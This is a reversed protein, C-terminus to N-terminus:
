TVGNHELTLVVNGKKHGQGVYRHAEATQELPYCRDIVPKIEGAEILMGLFVLDEAKEKDTSGMVSLFVGKEKLLARCQASSIKGVADFLLDYREGNQTFDERTYDIVKGAGLAKVWELNPTSCVGTVEAGFYRALQVAFSGVSGSAGYVLIKQGAQLNGKRLFRLATAGGVPVAAAQEFTMNAPKVALPGDEPLCKYGAYGGFGTTCTSAFVQDGPKFRKVDKGTSEIVGALEMGLVPRRPKLIGLYLRAFLWEGRPVTFSRMRVDGATATTAYVKVQIENDRPSPKDVEKLHLVEPPGYREYVIAKM